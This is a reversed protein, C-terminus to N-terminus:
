KLTQVMTNRPSTTLVLQKLHSNDLSVTWSLTHLSQPFVTTM